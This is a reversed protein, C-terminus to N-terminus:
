AALLFWAVKEASQKSMEGALHEIENRVLEVKWFVLIWNLWIRKKQCNTVFIVKGETELTMNESRDSLEYADGKIDMNRLCRLHRWGRGMVWNWLQEWANLYKSCCCGVAPYWFRDYDEPSDYCFAMFQHSLCYAKIKECNQFTGTRVLQSSPQRGPKEWQTRVHHPSLAM